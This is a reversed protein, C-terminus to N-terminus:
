IMEHGLIMALQSENDLRGLLGTHVYVRGNPMAFANLTPDRLVILKFTAGGALRDGVRTLYEELVPDDYPRAKKLLAAEEQEAAAWLATEDAYSEFPQGGARSPAIARAGCASATLTVIVLWAARRRRRRM